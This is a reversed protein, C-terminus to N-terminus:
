VFGAQCILGTKTQLLLAFLFYLGPFDGKEIKLFQKLYSM